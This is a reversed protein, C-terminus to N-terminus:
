QSRLKERRIKTIEALTRAAAERTEPDTIASLRAELDAISTKFPDKDLNSSDSDRVTGINQRAAEVRRQFNNASKPNFPNRETM